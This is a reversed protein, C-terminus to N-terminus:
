ARAMSYDICAQWENDVNGKFSNSTVSTDHVKNEVLKCEQTDLLLGFFFFFLIDALTDNKM